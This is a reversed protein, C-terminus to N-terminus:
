EYGQDIKESGICKLSNFDFLDLQKSYMIAIINYDKIFLCSDFINKDRNKTNIVGKSKM